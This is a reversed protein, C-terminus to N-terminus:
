AVDNPHRGKFGRLSGTVDFGRGNDPLGLKRYKKLVFMKKDDVFGRPKGGVPARAHGETENLPQPCAARRRRKQFERVPEVAVGRPSQDDALGAFCQHPKMFHLAFPLNFFMVPKEHLAVPDVVPLMYLCRERTVNQRAALPAHLNILDLPKRGVRNERQNFAEPVHRKEIRFQFGSARVLNANM